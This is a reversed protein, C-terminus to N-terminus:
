QRTNPAVGVNPDSKKAGPEHAVDAMVKAATSTTDAPM